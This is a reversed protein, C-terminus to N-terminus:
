SIHSLDRLTENGKQEFFLTWNFGLVNSIRKAVAVSPNRVGNEIMGYYQREIGAELAVKKHTMGAKERLDTLWARAVEVDGGFRFTAM